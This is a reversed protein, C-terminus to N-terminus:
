QHVTLVVARVCYMAASWEIPRSGAVSFIDWSSWSKMTRSVLFDEIWLLLKGNIGLGRLKEILSKHLVSDFAKRYDLYVVDLGYGVDIGEDLERINRALEHSM